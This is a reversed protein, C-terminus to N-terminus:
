KRPSIISREQQPLFIKQFGILWAKKAVPLSLGSVVLTEIGNWMAIITYTITHVDLEKSIFERQQLQTLFNSLVEVYEDQTKRLIKRLVLNHSAESLIEFQLGQHHPPGYRHIMKDFFISASEIPDRNEIFTTYTINKLITPENRCIAEFLDEKSSYYQYLAGKSVNIKKAVDEMTAQRYGKEAFVQNAAELIRSKAEEKYEPVVRPL